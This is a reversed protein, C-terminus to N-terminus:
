QHNETQLKSIEREAKIIRGQHNTASSSRIIRGQHIVSNLFDAIMGWNPTGEIQPKKPDHHKFKDSDMLMALVIIELDSWRTHGQGEVIGTSNIKIEGSRVKSITTNGGRLRQEAIDEPNAADITRLAIRAARASTLANAEDPSVLQRVVFGIARAANKPYLEAQEPAVIKAIDLNTFLPADPNESASLRVMDLIEDGRGMTILFQSLYQAEKAAAVQDPRLGSLMAQGTEPRQTEAM